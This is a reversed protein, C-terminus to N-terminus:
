IWRPEPDFLVPRGLITCVSAIAIAARGGDLAAPRAGLLWRCQYQQVPVDKRLSSGIDRCRNILNDVKRTSAYIICWYM